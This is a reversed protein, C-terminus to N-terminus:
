AAGWWAAAGSERWNGRGQRRGRMAGVMVRSWRSAAECKGEDMVWVIVRRM